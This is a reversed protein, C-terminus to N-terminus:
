GGLLSRQENIWRAEESLLFRVFPVIDGVEGLRGAGVTSKV